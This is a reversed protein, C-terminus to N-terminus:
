PALFIKLVVQKKVDYIHFFDQMFYKSNEPVEMM